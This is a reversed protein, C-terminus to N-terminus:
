FQGDDSCQACIEGYIKQPHPVVGCAKNKGVNEMHGAMELLVTAM